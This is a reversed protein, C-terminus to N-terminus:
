LAETRRLASYLLLVVINIIVLLVLSVACATGMQYSGFGQNWIMIPLTYTALGPGGATMVYILDFSKLNDIALLLAVLTIVPWLLPLLVHRLVALAGAGDIEAAEVIEPAVSRIGAVFVLFVFPTWEWVNTVIVAAMATHVDSLWPHVPLRLLSALYHIIGINPDYMYFWMLAVVAPTLLVPMVLLSRLVAFGPREHHLLAALAYGLLLQLALSALAFVVTRGVSQGFLQTALLSIYNRLGVFTARDPAFLWYSRLSTWVAFVLPYLTLALLLVVPGLLFKAAVAPDRARRQRRRIAVGPRPKVATAGADLVTPRN